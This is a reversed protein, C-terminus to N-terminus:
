GDVIFQSGNSGGRRDSNPVLGVGVGPQQINQLIQSVIPSLSVGQGTIDGGQGSLQGIIGFLLTTTQQQGQALQAQLQMIQTQHEMQLNMMSERWEMEVRDRKEELIRWRQREEERREQDRMEREWEREERAREMEDRDRERIREREERERQREEREREREREAEERLMAREEMEMEKRREREERRLELDRLEAFQAGLFGLVRADYVLSRDGKKKRKRNRQLLCDDEDKDVDDEGSEGEGDEEGDYELGGIGLGLIGSGNEGEQGIRGEGYSCMGFPVLPGTDGEVMGHIGGDRAFNQNKGRLGFWIRGKGVVNKMNGGVHVNGRPVLDNLDLEVDGFVEKYKLFNLWHTVGEAWDYEEQDGNGLQDINKRIKQKVGLYQHRMNQVKTSADRWTWEWPFAVPDQAHHMVNVHDAIPEFKRERTKLKSLVGSRLLEGYKNILTEEEEETWKKRKMHAASMLKKHRKAALSSVLPEGTMTSVGGHEEPASFLVPLRDEVNASFDSPVRLLEFETAFVVALHIRGDEIGTDLVLKPQKRSELVLGPMWFHFVNAPLIRGFVICPIFVIKVPGRSDKRPCQCPCM